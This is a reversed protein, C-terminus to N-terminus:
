PILITSGVTTRAALDRQAQAADDLAYRQGILVKLVGTRIAGFVAAAANELDGRAATYTALTPRTLYLSGRAALSSAAIGTVEGSANGYTVMMGRPALCDLSATFNEQGTADYVVPVMAGGTVERVRAALDHTGIIVETAGNDRALAAKAESSVVGITRVGKCRAWQCLFLGVGGAASHVLITEGAHVPRVEDLLMHATMGRLLAAAAVDSDIGDPIPVCRAAPVVRREAYAGLVGAYVVRDGVEVSTVGDGVSEVIGAGEMGPIAPMSPFKYVGTRFYIDIFNVGIAEHRLLIEGAKPLPTPLEEVRLQEPGGYAHVRVAKFM